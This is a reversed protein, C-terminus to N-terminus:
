SSSSSSRQHNMGAADMVGWHEVFSGGDVRFFDCVDIDIPNGSPPIGMFEGQHTATM